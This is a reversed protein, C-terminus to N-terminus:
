RSWRVGGNATLTPDNVTRFIYAAETAQPGGLYGSIQSHSAADNVLSGLPTNTVYGSGTVVMSLGGGTVTLGTTFTSTGFNINLSGNSVQALVANKGTQQLTADGSVLAFSATGDHPLVLATDNLRRIEYSGLFSPQGYAGSALKAMLSADPAVGAITAYRGWLVEQQVKVPTVPAVPTVVVPPTSIVTPPPLVPDTTTPPTTTDSTTKNALPLGRQADLSVDAVPLPAAGGVKGVPEDPRPAANQDPSLAPNRLLQPASQGRQVQLLMGSEGAYLERSASGECPGAGEPGCAGAFGSVIVGGSMVTVRSTQQDTYVIFDTGRVGIAAVPTNFRFNQRSKKVGLGSISRAVGSELELKVRTNAPDKDDIHYATIRAKSNPRLILFGSDITKLYIYGDAGTTLEDGEAVAADLVAAHGAQQVQGTVFVIRGAEGACALASLCSLLLGALAFLPRSM